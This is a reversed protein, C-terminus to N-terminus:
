ALPKRRHFWVASCPRQEIKQM